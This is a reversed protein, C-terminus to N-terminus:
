VRLVFFCQTKGIFGGAITFAELPHSRIVRMGFEEATYDFKAPPLREIVVKSGDFSKVTVDAIEGHPWLAEGHNGEFIWVAHKHLEKPCQDVECEYPIAILPKAAAPPAPPV